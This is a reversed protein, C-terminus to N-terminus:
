FAGLLTAAAFVLFLVGGTYGVVKESIYRALLAGGLVALLTALTHGLIAGSAVGWPSQAAGLAVTALMSRDGWEALFVLSFTEGLITLPTSLKKDAQVQKVVQEAEALEGSDAAADPADAPASPLEWAEKIAKLGFLILLAVAAYEGIPLSTQLQAPVRQFLRGIVVSIVTMLSLAGMSGLLVLGRSHRMALLAAIFFTKDGIESVFILAFAAYFGSKSIAAALAAPGGSALTFSVAAITGVLTIGSIIGAAQLNRTPMKQPATQSEKSTQLDAASEGLESQRQSPPAAADHSQHNQDGFEATSSSSSASALCSASTAAAVLLDRCSSSPWRWLRAKTRRLASHAVSLLAASQPARWPRQQWLLVNHNVHHHELVLARSSLAEM